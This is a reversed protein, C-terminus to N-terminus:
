KRKFLQGFATLMHKSKGSKEFYKKRTFICSTKLCVALNICMAVSRESMTSLNENHLYLLYLLIGWNAVVKIQQMNRWTLTVHSM